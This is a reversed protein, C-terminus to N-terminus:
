RESTGLVLADDILQLDADCAPCRLHDGSTSHPHSTRALVATALAIDVFAETAYGGALAGAVADTKEAGVAVLVREPISRIDDRSIAITRSELDAGCAAGTISYFLGGLEGVAREEDLQNIEADTVYGSKYLGGDRSAKGVSFIYMDARRANDLTAAIRSDSMIAKRIAPTDVYLPAAILDAKAGLVDALASVAPDLANRGPVTPIMGGMQAITLSPHDGPPVSRSLALVTPGWLMTVMSSAIIRPHCALAARRTTEALARQEDNGVDVVTASRLGFRAALRGALDEVLVSPDRIDITVIGTAEAERLLRSVTQRSVDFEKAIEAQTLRQRYYMTAVDVLLDPREEHM